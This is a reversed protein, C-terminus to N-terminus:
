ETERLVVPWRWPHDPSPPHGGMRKGSEVLAALGEESWNRHGKINESSYKIITTPSVGFEEAAQRVTLKKRFRLHGVIDEGDRFGLAMARRDIDTPNAPNRIRRGDQPIDLTDRLRKVTRRSTGLCLAVMGWDNGGDINWEEGRFEPIVKDAPRGYEKEIMEIRKELPIYSLPMGLSVRLHRLTKRSINLERAVPEWRGMKNKLGEIVERAPRGYEEEIERARKEAAQRM